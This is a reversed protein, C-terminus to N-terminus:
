EEGEQEAQMEKIQRALESVDISQIELEGNMGLEIAKLVGSLVLETLREKQYENDCNDYLTAITACLGTVIEKISADEISVSNKTIVVKM